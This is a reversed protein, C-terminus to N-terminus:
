GNYPSIKKVEAKLGFEPDDKPQLQIIVKRGVCNQFIGGRGDITIDPRTSDKTGFFGDYTKACRAQWDNRKAPDDKEKDGPQLNHYVTIAYGPKLERVSGDDNPVCNCSNDMTFELVLNMGTQEKNRKVEVKTCTFLYGGAQPCPRSTDVKTLDVRFNIPEETTTTSM